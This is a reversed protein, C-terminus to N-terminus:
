DLKQRSQWKRNEIQHAKREKRKKKPGQNKGLSGNSTKLRTLKRRRRKGKSYSKGLDGNRTDIQRAKKNAKAKAQISM